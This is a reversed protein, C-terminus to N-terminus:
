PCCGSMCAQYQAGCTDREQDNLCDDKADACSLECETRGRGCGSGTHGGGTPPEIFVCSEVCNRYTTQANGFCVWEQFQCEDAEHMHNDVCDNYTAFCASRASAYNSDCTDCSTALVPRVKVSIVVGAALVGLILVRQIVGRLESDRM